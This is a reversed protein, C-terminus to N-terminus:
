HFTEHKLVARAWGSIRICSSVVVPQIKLKAKKFTLSRNKIDLVKKKKKKKLM